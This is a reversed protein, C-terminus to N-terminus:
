LDWFYRLGGGNVGVYIASIMTCQLPIRFAQQSRYPVDDLVELTEPDVAAMHSNTQKLGDGIGKIIAM